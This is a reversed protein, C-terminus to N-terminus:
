RPQVGGAGCPRGRPRCSPQCGHGPRESSRWSIPSRPWSSRSRTPTCIESWIAATGTSTVSRTTTGPTCCRPCPTTTRAGVVLYGDPVDDVALDPFSYFLADEAYGVTKHQAFVSYLAREVDTRFRWRGNARPLAAFLPTSHPGSTGVAPRFLEGEQTAAQAIETRSRAVVDTAAANLILDLRDSHRWTETLTFGITDGHVESTYYEFRQQGMFGGDVARIAPSESIYLAWDLANKLRASAWITFRMWNDDSISTLTLYSIENEDLLEQVRAPKVTWENSWPWMNDDVAEMAPFVGTRQWWMIAELAPRVHSDFRSARISAAIPAAIEALQIALLGVAVVRVPVSAPAGPLQAATSRQMQRSLGSRSLLDRAAEPDVNWLADIGRDSMRGTTRATAAEQEFIEAWHGVRGLEAVGQLYGPTVLSEVPAVTARVRALAATQADPDRLTGSARGAATRQVNGATLDLYRELERELQERATRFESSRRHQQEAYKEYRTLTNEVTRLNQLREIEARVPSTSLFSQARGGGSAQVAGSSDVTLTGVGTGQPELSVHVDVGAENFAAIASRNLFQRGSRTEQSQAMVAVRGGGSGLQVDKLFAAFANVEATSGLAGLHHGVGEIIRVGSYVEQYVPNTMATRLLELDPFREDSVFM